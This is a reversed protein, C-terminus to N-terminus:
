QTARRAVIPSLILVCLLSVASTLQTALATKGTGPAGTLLMHGCAPVGAATLEQLQCNASLSCRNRFVQVEVQPPGESMASADGIRVLVGVSCCLGDNGCMGSQASVLVCAAGNVASIGGIGLFLRAQLPRMALVPLLRRLARVAADQLWDAAPLSAQVSVAQM